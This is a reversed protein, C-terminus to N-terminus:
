LSLSFVHNKTGSPDYFRIHYPFYSLVTVRLLGFKSLQLSTVVQVGDEVCMAKTEEEVSNVLRSDFYAQQSDGTVCVGNTVVASHRWIHSAGTLSWCVALSFV